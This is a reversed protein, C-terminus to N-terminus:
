EAAQATSFDFKSAINNSVQDLVTGDTLDWFGDGAELQAILADVESASLYPADTEPNRTFQLSYVFGYGESLDHFATTFDQDALARKGAQLYYVARM